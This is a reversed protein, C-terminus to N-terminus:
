LYFRDTVGQTLELITSWGVLEDVRSSVSPPLLDLIVMSGTCAYFRCQGSERVHALLARLTPIHRREFADNVADAAFQPADLDGRVLRELAWWFFFVAPRRGEAAATAAISLGQHVRDYDGSHLFVALDCAKDGTAM